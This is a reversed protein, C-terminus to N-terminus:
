IERIDNRFVYGETEVTAMHRCPPGNFGRESITLARNIPGSSGRFM